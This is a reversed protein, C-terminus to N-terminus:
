FKVDYKNKPFLNTFPDKKSDSGIGINGIINLVKDIGHSMKDTGNNIMDIGKGINDINFNRIDFKVLVKDVRGLKRYGTLVVDYYRCFNGQQIVNLKRWEKKDLFKKPRYKEYEIKKVQSKPHKNNKQNGDNHRNKRKQLYM